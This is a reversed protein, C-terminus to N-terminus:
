RDSSKPDLVDRLGDGLLCFGLSVVFIAAGPVTPVWWQDLLLQRGTSIMAGWMIVQHLIIQWWVEKLAKDQVDTVLGGWDDSVEDNMGYAQILLRGEVNENFRRVMEATALRTAIFRPLNYRFLLAAIMLSVVMTATVAMGSAPFARWLAAWAIVMFCCAEIFNFFANEFFVTSFRVDEVLNTILSGSHIRDHYSFNEHQLRRYIRGRLGVLIDQALQGQAIIRTFNTLWRLVAAMVLALPLWLLRGRETALGSADFGFALFPGDGYSDVYLKLVEPWLLETVNCVLVLCLVGALQRRRGRMCFRLLQGFARFWDTM